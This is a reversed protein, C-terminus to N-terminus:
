SIELASKAKVINAHEDKLRNFKDEFGSLLILAEKPRHIGSTPRQRNWENINDNIHRELLKDEEMIRSQLNAVKFKRHKHLLHLISLVTGSEPHVRGKQEFRRVSSDM